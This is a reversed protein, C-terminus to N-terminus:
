RVSERALQYRGVLAYVAIGFAVAVNLSNKTGYMPIEVSQDALAVLAPDVGEIENGVVLCTPYSFEAQAIPISRDTQELLVISVGQQKLQQACEVASPYRQWAVNETAGLSTKLVKRAPPYGTYGCLFLKSLGAGDATRFMSGVNYLSRINNLLAFVPFPETTQSAQKLVIEEHTLKRM